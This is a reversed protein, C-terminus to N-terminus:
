CIKHLDKPMNEHLGNMAYIEDNIQGNLLKVINERSEILKKINSLKQKVRIMMESDIIVFPLNDATFQGALLLQYYEGYHTERGIVPNVITHAKEISTYRIYGFPRNSMITTFLRETDYAITFGNAQLEDIKNTCLM